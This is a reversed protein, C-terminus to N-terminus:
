PRPMNYAFNFQLVIRDGKFEGPLPPFPNSASIAAIAARDLAEAGSGSAIVLKPVKGERSISFQIAVRGRRGLHVSEPIIAFWNRKVTALIQALYPRFDVGMPDSLLQLNSGQSGPSPPLNAASGFGGPGSAGADGVMLGGAGAGRGSQRIADSPNPVPVQGRATSVPPPAGVNEFLSKPKEEPQIQPPAPNTVPAPPLDPRPPEKVAAEVKPPEPLPQPKVAAPPPSPPQLARPRTTSPPGQPIQINPRPKLETANFEKNVKGKNPAKQTLETLPEILPTIIRKVQATEPRRNSESFFIDGPLFALLAIVAAHVAVSLIAAERSRSRSAPDGWQTLLQLDADAPPQAVTEM